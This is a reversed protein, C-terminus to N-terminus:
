ATSSRLASQSCIGKFIRQVPNLNEERRDGAMPEALILTGDTNLSDRIHAVAGVADGMDHLADFITVLDFGSDKDDQARATEFRVNRLASARSRAQTVSAEQFDIVSM